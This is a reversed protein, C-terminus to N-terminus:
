LVGNSPDSEKLSRVRFGATPDSEKLSRVRFGATPDSEKLSGVGETLQMLTAQGSTIPGREWAGKKM